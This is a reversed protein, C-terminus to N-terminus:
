FIFGILFEMEYSNISSNVILIINYDPFSTSNEYLKIMIVFVYKLSM